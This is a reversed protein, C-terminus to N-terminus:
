YGVVDYFGVLGCGGVVWFLLVHLGEDPLSIIAKKFSQFGDKISPYFCNRDMFMLQSSWAVIVGTKTMSGFLFLASKSDWKSSHEKVEILPIERTFLCEGLSGLPTEKLRRTGM